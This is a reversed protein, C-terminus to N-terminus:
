LFCFYKMIEYSRVTKSGIVKVTQVEPISSCEYKFINWNSAVRRLLKEHSDPTYPLTFAFKEYNYPITPNIFFM